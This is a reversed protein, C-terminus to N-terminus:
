TSGHRAGLPKEDGACEAADAGPRARLEGGLAHLDDPEIEAVVIPPHSECGIDLDREHAAVDGIAVRERVREVLVADRVDDMESRQEDRADLAVRGVAGGDVDAARDVHEVGCLRPADLHGIRARRGHVRLDVVGATRDRVVRDTM